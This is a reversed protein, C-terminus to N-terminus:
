INVLFGFKELEYFAQCGVGRIFRLRCRLSCSARSKKMIKKRENKGTKLDVKIEEGDQIDTTALDARLIPM